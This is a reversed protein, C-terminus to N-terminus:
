EDRSRKRRDYWNGGDADIIKQMIISKYAWMQEIKEVSYEDYAARVDAALQELNFQLRQKELGRRRKAVCSALARFFSLDCINTDPSQSPQRVIQVPPKLKKGAKDIDAEAGKGVHPPAGDHQVTVKRALGRYAKSIAPLVEETMLKVYREANMTVDVEYEDGAAHYKSNKKATKMESIRWCGLKGDFTCEDGDFRPRGIATLFMTKPVHSKHQVPTLPAAQGPPVKHTRHLAITYWWKEDLDVHALWDDDLYSRAFEVRATRHKDTLLPVTRTRATTNWNQEHTFRLLTSDSIEIDHKALEAEMEEFTFNFNWEKAQAAFAAQVEPTMKRPVGKDCREKREAPKEDPKAGLLKAIDLHQSIYGRAVNWSLELKSVGIKKGINM